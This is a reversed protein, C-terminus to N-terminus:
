FTYGVLDVVAADDWIDDGLPLVMLGEKTETVTDGTRAGLFSTHRIDNTKLAFGSAAYLPQNGFLVFFAAPSMKAEAIAASMLTSAIGKGRHDPHTAVEALGAVQTLRDGIRIARLSIAMHGIIAGAHRVVLRVHHRQQHYSRGGFETDFAIDLLAGIQTEDDGTMRMEEIREVQM